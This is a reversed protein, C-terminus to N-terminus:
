PDSAAKLLANLLTVPIAGAFYREALCLAQDAANRDLIGTLARVNPVAYVTGNVPMHRMPSRDGGRARVARREGLTSRSGPARRFAIFKDTFEM